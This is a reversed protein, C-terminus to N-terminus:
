QQVWDQEGDVYLWRGGVDRLFRSREVFSQQHFGQARQGQQGRVKLWTQFTVWGEEPSGGEETSLIKLTEFNIRRLLPAPRPKGRRGSPGAALGAPAPAAGRCGRRPPLLLLLLLLAAGSKLLPWWTRRSHPSQGRLLAPTRPTPPTWWTSRPLGAPAPHSAPAAMDGPRGRPRRKREPCATKLRVQWDGKVYASFRSRMLQEPTDPLKAGEHFPKCCEQLPPPWRCPDAGRPGLERSRAGGRGVKFSNGSGCPCTQKSTKKQAPASKSGFGFGAAAPPLPPARTGGRRLGRQTAPQGALAAGAAKRPPVVLAAPRTAPPVVLAPRAPSVAVVIVAAM